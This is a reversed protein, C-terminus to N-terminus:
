GIMALLEAESIIREQLGYQLADKYKSGPNEGLVLYCHGNNKKPVSGLVKGGNREILVGVEKRGMTPLTGTVVFSKGSLAAGSGADEPETMELGLEKLEAIIVMGRESDFFSKISRATIEGIDNIALLEPETAAAVKDMTKFRRAVDKSAKEGLNPVGLALLVRYLPQRKAAEIGALLKQVKLEGMGPLNLLRNKHQELTFIDPLDEILGENVLLEITSEGLGEINLADRGAANILRKIKQQTCDSGTCYLSLIQREKDASERLETPAGCSPCTKPIEIESVPGHSETPVVQVVKPIVDNARALLVRDGIRIGRERIYSVNVLTARSCMVDGLQVPEMVAVPCIIGTRGTNWEVDKLVTIADLSKFKFAISHRPYKETSGLAERKALSASKLVLGDIAYELTQRRKEAFESCFEVLDSQGEPTNEFLWTPVTEFGQEQLFALQEMDSEFSAGKIHVVDFAIARVNRSAAVSGDLTRISGAALNRTNSYRGDTNIREFDAFTIIAEARVDLEGTFPIKKPVNALNRVSHLIREGVMGDGRSVCDVLEGGSYSLVVTLGDLKLQVMVSDKIREVFSIVGSIDNVKDLSLMKSKHAVKELGEVFSTVIKKTPSAPDALHPNKKELEVLNAYLQDYESDTIIPTMNDYLEDHKKVEARLKDLREKESSAPEEMLDFLSFTM